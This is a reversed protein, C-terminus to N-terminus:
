SARLHKKLWPGTEEEKMASWGRRASDESAVKRMGLLGPNVGDGLWASIIRMGGTGALVSLLITGLVDGIQPANPSTYPLPGDNVWNELLGSTKWFEICFPMQGLSSVEAEPVWQFQIKGAFSDMNLTTEAPQVGERPQEGEPHVQILAKDDSM